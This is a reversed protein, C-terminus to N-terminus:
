DSIVEGHASVEDCWEIFEDVCEGSTLVSEEYNVYDQLTGNELFDYSPSGPMIDFVKTATLTLKVKAM